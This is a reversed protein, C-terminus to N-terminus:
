GYEGASDGTNYIRARAIIRQAPNGTTIRLLGFGGPLDFGTRVVDKYIRTETSNLTAPITKHVDGNTMYSVFVTIPLSASSRSANTVVLDTKWQSGFEGATRAVVPIVVDHSALDLAFVQSLGAFLLIASLFISRSKM